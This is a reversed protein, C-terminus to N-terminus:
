NKSNLSIRRKQKKRDSKQPTTRTIPSNSDPSSPVISKEMIDNYHPQAGSSIYDRIVEQVAQVLVSGILPDM